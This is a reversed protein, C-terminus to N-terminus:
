RKKNGEGSPACEATIGASKLQGLLGTFHDAKALGSTLAPLIAARCAEITEYAQWQPPVYRVRDPMGATPVGVLSIVVVIKFMVGCGRAEVTARDARGCETRM